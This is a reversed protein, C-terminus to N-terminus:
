AYSAGRQVAGGAHGAGAAPRPVYRGPNLWPCPVRAAVMKLPRLEDHTVRGNPWCRRTAPRVPLWVELERARELTPMLMRSLVLADDFADHPRLQTVGWHEALTELRLNETGLALRRALEVTCMVTDVPLEVEALEAEAALFAYDFAVNHAVLTRGRLLEILEASIDAFEPQDALMDPTLGHVHTPGPDVGANLLSVVSGEVNGDADLALAAVSIIRAQGPRFGSTEVDIVAWGADHEATPLGWPTAGSRTKAPATM